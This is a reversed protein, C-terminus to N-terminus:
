SFSFRINSKQSQSSIQNKLIDLNSNTSDLLEAKKLYFEAMSFDRKMCLVSVLNAYIKFSSLGLALCHLLCLEAKDFQKLGIYADSACDYLIPSSDLHLKAKTCLQLAFDFRKEKVAQFALEVFDGSVESISPEPLNNQLTSAIPNKAVTSNKPKALQNSRLVEEESFALLLPDAFSWESTSSKPASHMEKLSNLRLMNQVADGFDPSISLIEQLLKEADPFEKLDILLNAYNNKISLSDPSLSLAIRLLKKADSFKGLRRCCAGYLSLYEHDEEFYSELSQLLEYAQQTQGLQFFAAAVIKLSSPDNRLADSSNQYIALIDNYKAQQFLDILAAVEIVPM